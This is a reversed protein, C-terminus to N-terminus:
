KVKYYYIWYKDMDESQVLGNTGIDTWGMMELFQVEM